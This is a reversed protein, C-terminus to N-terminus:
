SLSWQGGPATKSAICNDETATAERKLARAETLSVLERLLPAILTSM